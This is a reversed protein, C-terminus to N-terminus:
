RERHRGRGDHVLFGSFRFRFSMATQQSESTLLARHPAGRRFPQGSTEVRTDPRSVKPRLHHPTQLGACLEALTETRLSARTTGADKYSPDGPGDAGTQVPRSVRGVKTAPEPRTLHHPPRLGACLAALGARLVSHLRMDRRTKGRSCHRCLEFKAPEMENRCRFNVLEGMEPPVALPPRTPPFVFYTRNVEQL